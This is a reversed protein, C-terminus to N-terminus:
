KSVETFIVGEFEIIRGDLTVFRADYTFTLDQNDVYEFHYDETSIEIRKGQYNIYPMYIKGDDYNIVLENNDDDYFYFYIGAVGAYSAEVYTPTFNLKTGAVDEYNYGEVAGTWELWYTQNKCEWEIRFTTSRDGNNKVVAKASTMKVHDASYGHICYNLSMTGSETSYTGNAVPKGVAIDSAKFNFKHGELESYYFVIEKEGPKDYYVEARLIDYPIADGGGINEEYEFGEVAGTWEAIYIVNDYKWSIDFRTQGDRTLADLSADIMAGNVGEVDHVGGIITEGIMSYYGDLIVGEALTTAVNFLYRKNDDATFILEVSGEVSSGLAVSSIVLSEERLKALQTVSIERSVNVYDVYLTATRSEYTPNEDVSILIETDSVTARLWSELATIEIEAGAQPNDITYAVAYDGGASAAEVASKDLTLDVVVGAQNITLSCQAEEGYVFGLSRTRSDVDTNPAIDVIIADETVEFSGFWGDDTGLYGLEVGEIPNEITYGISYSGGEAPVEVVSKELVIVPADPKAAAAQEVTVTAKFSDYLLTVTAERAEYASNEAAVYVIKGSEAVGESLWEANDSSSVEVGQLPNTILYTIIVEGGTADVSVASDSTLEFKTEPQQTTAAPEKECAFLMVSIFLLSLIKTFTKMNNM